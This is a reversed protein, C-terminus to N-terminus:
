KQSELYRLLVAVTREEGISGDLCMARVEDHTRWEPEIVEGEEELSQGNPHNEFESVVFYYLDWLMTSGPSTTHIHNMVIPVLGVEEQAERKVTDVANALVYDDSVRYKRYDSLTDFVKGGPLRYDFGNLETRYEHTILMKGDKVFIIRVGPSRRATEFKITKDGIKMPQQVVEIIRGEYMVEEDGAIEPKLM